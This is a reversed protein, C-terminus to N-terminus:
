KAVKDLEKQATESAEDLAEKASINELEVKDAAIKLADMLKGGTPDIFVPSATLSQEFPIKAYPNAELFEKYSAVDATSQRVPVYGITQSWKAQNESSTFYTIWKFAADKEEQSSIKPMAMNLGGAVPKAPNGNLGPQKQADIKTFDLDGRDGSSGTYSGSKGTMVQDITKYWYEWGQGGSIVGMNKTDHLQERAFEWAEIWEPRNITVTKGDESLFSGGNSLALDALNGEGWMLMHGFDAAKTDKIEKSAKALNEWSSFAETADINAAKFVEKNYYMIQTTGYAPIAYTKGDIENNKTFVELFDVKDFDAEATYNDLAELVGKDGGYTNVTGSEAIFVAPANKAAIGAQVKQWTETYDAQQVGKVVVEDQSENFEKIMSEMTEGAVSGLGYWFEINVTKSAATEKSTSSANTNGSQNGCAALLLSAGLVSTIVRMKKFKM